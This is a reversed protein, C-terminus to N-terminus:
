PHVEEYTSSGIAKYYRGCPPCQYFYTETWTTKETKWRCLYRGCNPCINRTPNNIYIVPLVGCSDTGWCDSGPEVTAACGDKLYDRDYGGSVADLEDPSLEKGNAERRRALEAWLREALAEDEGAEKLLAAMEGASQAKLLRAKLENSLETM